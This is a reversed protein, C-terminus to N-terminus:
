ELKGGEVTGSEGREPAEVVVAFGHLRLIAAANELSAFGIVRSSGVYLTPYGAELLVERARIQKWGSVVIADGWPRIVVEMM